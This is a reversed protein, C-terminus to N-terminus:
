KQKEDEVKENWFTPDILLGDGLGISKQAEYDNDYINCGNLHGCEHQFVHALGGSLNETIPKSLVLESKEDKRVLTQYTVVTKNYREINEKIDEDPFSMCGENKLIFAKTHDTLVPNIIVMGTPLVFFRLPDKNDIQPHALAAIGSYKGRPLNCMAVLDKGDALVRPLDESKVWRSRKNHPACYRGSLRTYELMTKRRKEVEEPPLNEEIEEATPAPTGPSAE